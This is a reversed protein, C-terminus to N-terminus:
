SCRAAEPKESLACHSDPTADAPTAPLGSRWMLAFCGPFRIFHARSYGVTAALGAIDLPEAYDRDIRDRALRLARLARVDAAAGTPSAM